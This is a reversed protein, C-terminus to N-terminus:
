KEEVVPVRFQCLQNRYCSIMKQITKFDRNYSSDEGCRFAIPADEIGNRIKLEPPIKSLIYNANELKQQFEDEKSPSWSGQECELAFMKMTADGVTAKLQDCVLNISDIILQAMELAKASPQQENIASPQQENIASPQQKNIDSQSSM